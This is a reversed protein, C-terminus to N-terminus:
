LPGVKFQGIRSAPRNYAPAGLRRLVDGPRSAFTLEDPLEGAYQTFGDKGEGMLFIALIEGEGSLKILLGDAESRLYRVADMGEDPTSDEAEAHLKPFRALQKVVDPSAVHKGLIDLLETM